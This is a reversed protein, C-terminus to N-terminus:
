PKGRDHILELAHREYVCYHEPISISFIRAGKEVSIAPRTDTTARAIDGLMHGFLMKTTDCYFPDVICPDGTRQYNHSPCGGSCVYEAFCEGCSQDQRSDEYLGVLRDNELKEALVIDKGHVEGVKMLQGLPHDEYQVESCRSIYGNPSLAFRQGSIGECMYRSPFLVKHYHPSAVVMGRERAAQLAEIMNTAYSYADPQVFRKRSEHMTPYTYVPEFHVLNVGLSDLYEVMEAMRHVSDDTITVRVRLMDTEDSIRRLNAIVRESSREKGKQRRQQDQFEPLGDFSFSFYFGSALLKELLPTGFSGNTSIGPFFTKNPYKRRAEPLYGILDDIFMENLSPEGGFLNVFVERKDTKRLVSDLFSLGTHSPLDTPVSERLGLYCYGCDFNCRTTPIMVIDLQDRPNGPTLSPTFDFFGKHSLSEVGEKQDSIEAMMRQQMNFVYTIDDSRFAPLNRVTFIRPDTM